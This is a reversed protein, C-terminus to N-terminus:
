LMFFISRIGLFISVFGFFVMFVAV